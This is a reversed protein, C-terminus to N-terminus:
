VILPVNWFKRYHGRHVQREPKTEAGSLHNSLRTNQPTHVCAWRLKNECVHSTFRDRKTLHSKKEEIYLEQKNM